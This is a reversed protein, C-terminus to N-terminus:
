MAEAGGVGIMANLDVAGGPSAIDIADFDAYLIPPVPRFQPQATGAVIAIENSHLVAPLWDSQLQGNKVFRFYVDTRSFYTWQLWCGRVKIGATTGQALTIAPKGSPNAEGNAGCVPALMVIRSAGAGYMDHPRATRQGSHPQGNHVRYSATPKEM